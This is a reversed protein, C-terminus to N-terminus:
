APNCVTALVFPHDPGTPTTHAAHNSCATPTTEIVYAGTIIGQNSTQAAAQTHVQAITQTHLQMLQQMRM